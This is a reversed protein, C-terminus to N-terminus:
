ELTTVSMYSLFLLNIEYIILVKFILYKIQAISTFHFLYISFKGKTFNKRTWINSSTRLNYCHFCPILVVFIFISTKIKWVNGVNSGMFNKWWLKKGKYFMKVFCFLFDVYYKCSKLQSGTSAYKNIFENQLDNEYHTWDEVTVKHWVLLYRDCVKLKSQLHTLGNKNERTFHM